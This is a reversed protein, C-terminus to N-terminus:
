RAATPKAPAEGALDHILASATRAIRVLQGPVLKDHTDSPQHYDAHFGTSFHFSRIGRRRFWWEDTRYAYGFVELLRAPAGVLTLGADSAAREVVQRARPDDEFGIIGATAERAAGAEFFNRGVMDFNVVAITRELPWAPEDIYRASGILGVEEAGFAAFVITRRHQARVAHRALELLVVVGSANDDAGPYIVGDIEGLHDYHASVLVADAGGRLIGVVNVAHTGVPQEIVELGLARFHAAIWTAAARGGPAYSGRGARKPDCLWAADAMMREASFGHERAAPADAAAPPAVPARDVSRIGGCAAVVLATLAAHLIRWTM